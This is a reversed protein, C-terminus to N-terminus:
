VKTIIFKVADKLNGKAVSTIKAIQEEYDAKLDEIKKAADSDARDKSASLSKHKSANVAQLAEKARLKADEVSKVNQTKQQEVIEKAANEADKISSVIKQAM